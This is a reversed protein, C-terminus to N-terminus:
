LEIEPEKFGRQDIWSGKSVEENEREEQNEDILTIRVLPSQAVRFVRCDYTHLLNRSDGVHLRCLRM